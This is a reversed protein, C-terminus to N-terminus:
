LARKCFLGIITLLRSSTAVGYYGTKLLPTRPCTARVFGTHCFLRIYVCEQWFLGIYEQWFLGIYINTEEVSPTPVDHPRFGYSLISTHISIWTLLYKYVYRHLSRYIYIFWDREVRPTPENRSAYGISDRNWYPFLSESSLPTPEDRSAYQFLSRHLPPPSPDLVM